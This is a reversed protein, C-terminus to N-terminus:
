LRLLTPLRLWSRVMAGGKKRYPKVNVLIDKDYTSRLQPIKAVRQATSTQITNSVNLLDRRVIIQMVLPPLGTSTEAVVNKSENPNDLNGVSTAPQKLNHAAANVTAMNTVSRVLQSLVFGFVVPPVRHNGKHFSKVGFAFTSLALNNSSAPKCCSKTRAQLISKWRSAVKQGVVVVRSM